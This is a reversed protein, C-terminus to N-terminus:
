NWPAEPKIKIEGEVHNIIDIFYSAMAAGSIHENAWEKLNNRKELNVKGINMFLKLQKSVEYTTLQNIVKGVKVSSILTSAGCRKSVLVPTGEMISESIVAGWGDYRSPLVLLDYSNMCTRIAENSQFPLLRINDSLKFREKIQRSFELDSPGVCYLDAIIKERKITKLARILIDYGKWIALSGVFLVKYEHCDDLEPSKNKSEEVTYAWEFIKDVEYRWNKFQSVGKSGTTLILEIHKEYLLRHYFGRMWRLCGKVGRLDLPETFIGARCKNKIAYEFAQQVKPFAHLGSFIHFCNGGNNIELLEQWKCNEEHMRLITVDKLIPEKWGM